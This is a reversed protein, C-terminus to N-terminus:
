LIFLVGFFTDLLINRLSVQLVNGIVEMILDSVENSLRPDNVSLTHRLISAYWRLLFILESLHGLVPTKM